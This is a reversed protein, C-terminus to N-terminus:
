DEGSDGMIDDITSSTNKNESGRNPAFYSNGRSAKQGSNLQVGVGSAIKALNENLRNQQWSMSDIVSFAVCGTMAKYYEELQTIFELIELTEFPEYDREFEGTKENFGKVSHHYKHKFEYAYSSEVQGEKNVTRIIICSSKKDFEEGTSVTLIGSGARVGCNSYKKPDQIFSKLVEAMIRAKSHNLYILAAAKADYRAFEDNDSEIKPAIAIKMTDKWMTVSLRSPDIESEPNKMTYGYVSPRYIDKENNDYNQGLAM